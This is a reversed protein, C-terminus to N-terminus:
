SWEYGCKPCKHEVRIDDGISKFDSPSANGKDIKDSLFTIFDEDFGIKSLDFDEAALSKMREVLDVENWDSLDSTRNDALAFAAAKSEDEDDFRVCAIKKWGLEMAARLTGNGAIVKGSKLAVIPKQQGFADLSGKISEISKWDHVRVNSVDQVLNRIPVILGKLSENIKEVDSVKKKKM